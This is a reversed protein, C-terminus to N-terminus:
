GCYDDNGYNELKILDEHADSLLLKFSKALDIRDAARAGVEANTTNKVIYENENIIKEAFEFAKEIVKAKSAKTGM